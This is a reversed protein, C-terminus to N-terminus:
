RSSGAPTASMPLSRSHPSVSEALVALCQSVEMMFLGLTNKSIFAHLPLGICCWFQKDNLFLAFDLLIWMLQMSGFILLIILSMALINVNKCVLTYTNNVSWHMFCCVSLLINKNPKQIHSIRLQHLYLKHLHMCMETCHKNITEHQWCGIIWHFFM